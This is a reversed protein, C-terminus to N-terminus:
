QITGKLERLESKMEWLKGYPGTIEARALPVKIGTIAQFSKGAFASISNAIGAPWAFIAADLSYKNYWGWAMAKRYEYNRRAGEKDTNNSQLAYHYETQLQGLGATWRIVSIVVYATILVVLCIIAARIKSKM